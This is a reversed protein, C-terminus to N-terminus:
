TDWGKWDIDYLLATHVFQFTLFDLVPLNPKVVLPVELAYILLIKHPLFHM